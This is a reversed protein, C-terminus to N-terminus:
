RYMDKRHCVKLIKATGNEVDFSDRYDGVRFRYEGLDFDNLHEAFYLPNPSSMFFKLKKMIQWQIVRPLKSFEEASKGKFSYHM